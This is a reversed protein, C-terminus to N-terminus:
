RTFRDCIVQTMYGLGWRVVQLKRTGGIRPPEPCAIDATRLKRKASRASLIPEVGLRTFFVREYPAYTADRDLGLEYFLERRHIRYITMADSYHWRYLRNIVGTFLWNGFATVLDDDQSTAGEFYRSAIVMDFGERIKAILRPIYEPPCNGDPSFTIVYDGRILPWAERYAARLGPQQQVHVDYGRDRAYQATGDRSNGDLLLVQECWEPQVRPMIARMGQIENQAVVLLTTTM